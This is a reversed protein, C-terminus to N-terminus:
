VHAWAARSKVRRVTERCIGHDVAIKTPGRTDERIALVANDNLKSLGHKTGRNSRGKAVMDATNDAHTGLFLHDPNCCARTDCKHLVWLGDPIPGRYLRWSARHASELGEFRGGRRIQGYGHKTVTGQWLWCGTTPDIAYKKEFRRRFPGPRRVLRM